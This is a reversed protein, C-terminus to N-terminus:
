NLLGWFSLFVQMQWKWGLFALYVNLATVVGCYNAMQILQTPLTMDFSSTISAIWGSIMGLLIHYLVGNLSIMATGVVGFLAIKGLQSFLSMKAWWKIRGELEILGWVGAAFATFLLVKRLLSVFTEWGPFQTLCVETVHPKASAWYGSWFGAFDFCPRWTDSSTPVLVSLMASVPSSSGMTTQFDQWASWHTGTSFYSQYNQNTDPAAATALAILSDLKANTSSLDVNVVVSVSVSTGGIIYPSSSPTVPSTCTGLLDCLAPATGDPIIATSQVVAFGSAIAGKAATISMLDQAKIDPNSLASNMTNVVDAMDTLYASPLPLVQWSSSLESATVSCTPLYYYTIASGGAVDGIYGTYKKWDKGSTWTRYQEGYICLASMASSPCGVSSVYQPGVDLCGQFQNNSCVTGQLVNGRTWNTLYCADIHNNSDCNDVTSGPCSNLYTNDYVKGATRWAGASNLVTSAGYMQAVYLAYGSHGASDYAWASFRKTMGDSWGSPMYALAAVYAKVIGIAYTDFGTVASPDIARAPTTFLGLFLSVLVVKFVHGLGILTQKKHSFITM